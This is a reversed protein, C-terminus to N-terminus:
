AFLAPVQMGSPKLNARSPAECDELVSRPIDPLQDLSRLSIATM